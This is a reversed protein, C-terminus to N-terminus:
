LGPAEGTKPLQPMTERISVVLGLALLAPLATFL